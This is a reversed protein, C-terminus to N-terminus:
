KPLRLYTTEFGATEALSTWDLIELRGRRLNIYGEQRLRQFTRNVHVASLGLLDAFESQNLPLDCGYADAHGAAAMRHFIECLLHAMRCYASRRGLSLMWEQALAGQYAVYRLFAESFAPRAHLIERFALHPLRHFTANTQAVVTSCSSGLTFSEHDVIDGPVFIAVNQQQGDRTRKVAVAFGTELITITGSDEGERVLMAGRTASSLSGHARVADLLDQSPDIEAYTM